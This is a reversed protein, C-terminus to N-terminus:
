VDGLAHYLEDEQAFHLRLIANLEYLLRRVEQASELEIGDAPQDAAIRELMGVLHFIERHGGSLAALPDQGGLRRALEPYLDADDHIEHALLQERLAQNLAALEAAAAQGPLSAVRDAMSRVQDLVRGLESHETKLRSAEAATIQAPQWEPGPKRARLANLIVVVDILEQLLAGAVPPLYGFAAAIMAALSLAMGAVVSQVAIRRTRRAIQMAEALRDLRDVLLVVDAAQASAAAGAAGMAVGVDAAALAPADNVGDGVMIVKDDRQAERIAALKQAPTQQARVQTVGLMAGTMQAVDDRDGTLMVMRQIGAQRLLRLARPTDLRIQDALQLAGRMAGDVGLFVAAAGEHGMRRVWAASWPTPATARAVHALSGITVMHGGITGRLGAGPDEAVEGPLALALGRERAAAVLARSSAHVSAQALSAALRLVEDQAHGPAAEIASVRAQGTTLTGTKDFFLVHCQALRELAGGSKVLIGRSAARSMGCVIAVPVALILPCPTAVVLVALARHADGTMIWAAGAVALALPVLLLAYRDALRMSPSRSQQAEMVLRVIGSYTSQAATAGALMEFPAGANVVGSRLPEGPARRLPMAEGTLTSEDLEAAQLLTGDAPVVDGARVLLRDGPRVLELPVPRWEGREFRSAERPAHRLLASMESAARAQAYSELARGSALMLAIVAAAFHEGLWWAFGIALLALVDVGAKRRWAALVTSTALAILVPLVGILWVTRALAASEFWYLLSGASLTLACTALLGLNLWRHYRPQAPAM